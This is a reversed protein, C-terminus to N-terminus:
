KVKLTDSSNKLVDLSQQASKQSLSDLRSTVDDLRNKLTPIESPEKFFTNYTTFIIAIISLALAAKQYNNLKNKSKVYKYYGGALKAEIGKDTLYYINTEVEEVFDMTLLLHRLGFINDRLRDDIGIKESYRDYENQIFIEDDIKANALTFDLYDLLIKDKLM